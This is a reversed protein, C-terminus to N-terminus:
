ITDCFSTIEAKRPEVAEKYEVSCLGLGGCCEIEMHGYFHEITGIIKACEKMNPGTRLAIAYGKKGSRLKAHPEHTNCWPTCRDIFAKFQAPVDAWYSPAVSVIIDANEFDYMFLSHDDNQVCRATDHCTRCGKCFGFSHDDICISKATYKKSLEETVIRVIEATAGNRVPSCNIILANM